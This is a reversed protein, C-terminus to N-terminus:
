KRQVMWSKLTNNRASARQSPFESKMEITLVPATSSTRARKSSPEEKVKKNKGAHNDDDDDRDGEDDGVVEEVAGDDVDEDNDDNDDDDAVTASKRAPKKVAKAKAPAAKKRPVEDEDDSLVLVSAKPAARKTGKEAKVAKAAAVPKKNASSSSAAKIFGDDNEANADDDGMIEGEGNGALAPDDAAFDDPAAAAGARASAASAAPVREGAVGDAAAALAAAAKAAERRATADKALWERVMDDNAPPRGESLIAKTRESLQKKVSECIADKDDKEVFLHLAQNLEVEGLVLPHDLSERMLQVITSEIDIQEGQKNNRMSELVGMETDELVKAAAASKKRTGAGTTTRKKFFLLIDSPNAVQGVFSQGFRPAAVTSFGGSYEVKLRVLPPLPQRTGQAARTAAEVIEKVKDTLVKLLAAGDEPVLRPVASLQITEIVLPRVTKFPFARMRFKAERIELIGYCKQRAEGDSLSTAVSSGPQSIFFNGGHAAKTANILCEHEHGWIIMDLWSELFVEQIFNKPSHACRNQHLIMINFWSDREEVPRMMRVKQQQFTRHLREDRINGLGYLAVRSVGKQLLIPYLTINDVSAVKGFYNVFNAVSLLDLASLAGSGAPDDHNGHVTFFPLDINFNPDEYNVRHFRSSSGVNAFNLKQDSLVTVKVPRDGLCYTRMLEMTRHITKRSPKNDHFLDGGHLLFDVRHDRAAQLAEEFTVFSDNGRIPDDEMFGLHTDSIVMIRMTNDNPAAMPASEAAHTAGAGGAAAAEHVRENDPEDPAQDKVRVSSSSAKAEPSGKETKPERKVATSM